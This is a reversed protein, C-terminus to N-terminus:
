LHVRIYNGKSVERVLGELELEVIAKSVEQITMQTEEIITNISKPYLDLCSYLMNKGRALGTENFEITENKNEKIKVKNDTNEYKKIDDYLGSIKKNLLIDKWDLIMSAGMQVLRNCGESLPDTIRGPVAMVDKNQELAQDVTILSGSRKRAEVVVVVDSLASILRNRMPFQGKLPLTGPPYESMVCGTEIIDKYLGINDRPYCIDVGCGLVALTYGNHQLAGRHGATDIGLAMGSVIQIGISSFRGAYQYAITRGYESCGRAGIISVAPKTSDIIKGKYYLGYPKDYIEYFQRPYDDKGPYTFHINKDSLRCFDEYARGEKASKVIAAANDASIGNVKELMNKKASYIEEPNSFTNLLAKIKRNGIGSINCLWYWYFGEDSM